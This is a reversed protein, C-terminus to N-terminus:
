TTAHDLNKKKQSGSIGTQTALRALCDFCQCPSVKVSFQHTQSGTPPASIRFTPRVKGTRKQYMGVGKTGLYSHRTHLWTDITIISSDSRLPFAPTCPTVSLLFSYSIFSIYPGFSFSITTSLSIIAFHYFFLLLYVSTFYCLFRRRTNTDFLHPRLMEHMPACAHGRMAYVSRVVTYKVDICLYVYIYWRRIADLLPKLFGKDIVSQLSTSLSHWGIALCISSYM